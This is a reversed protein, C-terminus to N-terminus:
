LLLRFRQAGCPSKVPCPKPSCKLKVNYITREKGLQKESFFFFFFFLLLKQLTMEWDWEQVISSSSFDTMRPYLGIERETGANRFFISM